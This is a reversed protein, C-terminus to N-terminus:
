VPAVVIAAPVRWAFLAEATPLPPFMVKLPPVSCYVAALALWSQLASSLFLVAAGIVRSVFEWVTVKSWAM